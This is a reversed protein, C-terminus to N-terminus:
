QGCLIRLLTQSVTRHGDTQKDWRPGVAAFGSSFTQQEPGSRCSIDISQQLLPTRRVFAPLAANDAYTPLQVCVQKNKHSRNYRGDLVEPLWRCTPYEQLCIIRYRVIFFSSRCLGLSLVPVLVCRLTEDTEGHSENHM